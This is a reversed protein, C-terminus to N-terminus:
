QRCVVVELKDFVVPCDLLQIPADARIEVSSEDSVDPPETVLLLIIASLVHWAPHTSRDHHKPSPFSNLVPDPM